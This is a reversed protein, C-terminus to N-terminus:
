QLCNVVRTHRNDGSGVRQSTVLKVVLEVKIRASTDCRRFNQAHCGPRGSQYHAHVFVAPDNGRPFQSVHNEYIAVRRFVDLVDVLDGRYNFASFHVVRRRNFFLETDRGAFNNRLLM